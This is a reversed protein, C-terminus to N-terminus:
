SRSLFNCSSWKASLVHGSCATFYMETVHIRWLLAMGRCWTSVIETWFGAAGALFSPSSCDDISM